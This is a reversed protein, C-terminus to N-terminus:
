AMGPENKIASSNNAIFELLQCITEIEKKKRQMGTPLILVQSSVKDTIPLSIARYRDMSKYPEMNHCGPSFYKRALINEAHLLEILQDRDLGLSESHVQTVVYQYNAREGGVYEMLEIGSINALGKRYAEYNTRNYEFVQDLAPLNALGMAACIENMKGNIGLHIVRDYGKFGFNRMLRIKEALADDNTVVAGGEMSHYCKTAHLSFVEADGFNGISRGKYTCDFAHSSDFLVKLGYRDALDLIADVEVARGWLNVPIIGTTKPTILEEIKTPDIGHYPPSIDSFVPEIEQWKLAHATAVFTFSPIIVEGSMGLARIALELAITGNCVAVCHKVGLREEIKKELEVVFPGNNTLWNNDLAQNVRELFGERDNVYPQGVHLSTEFQPYGGFYKLDSVIRKMDVKGLDEYSYVLHQILLNWM